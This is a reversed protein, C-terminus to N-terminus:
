RAQVTTGALRGALQAAPFAMVADCISAIWAHREGSGRQRCREQAMVGGGKVGMVVVAAAAM